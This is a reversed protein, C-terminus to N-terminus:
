LLSVVIANENITYYEARTKSAVAGKHDTCTTCALIEGLNQFGV